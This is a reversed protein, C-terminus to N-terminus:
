GFAEKGGGVRGQPLPSVQLQPLLSLQRDTKGGRTEVGGRRKKHVRLNSFVSFPPPFHLRLLLARVAPYGPLSKTDSNKFAQCTKVTSHNVLKTHTHTHTHAHTRTHRPPMYKNSTDGSGMVPLRIKGLDSKCPHIFEIGM